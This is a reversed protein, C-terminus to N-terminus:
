HITVTELLIWVNLWLFMYIMAFPISLLPLIPMMHEGFLIIIRKCIWVFAWCAVAIPLAIGAWFHWIEARCWIEIHDAVSM